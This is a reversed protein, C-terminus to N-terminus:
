TINYNLTWYLCEINGSFNHYEVKLICINYCLYVVMLIDILAACQFWYIYINNIAVLKLLTKEKKKTVWFFYLNTMTIRMYTVANVMYTYITIRIDFNYWHTRRYIFLIIDHLTRQEWLILHFYPHFCLITYYVFIKIFLPSPNIKIKCLFFRKLKITLQSIGIFMPYLDVYIQTTWNM